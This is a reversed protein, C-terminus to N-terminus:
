STSIYITLLGDLYRLTKRGEAPHGGSEGPHGRKSGAGGTRQCVAPERCLAPCFTLFSSGGHFDAHAIAVLGLGTVAELPTIIGSVKDRQISFAPIIGSASM